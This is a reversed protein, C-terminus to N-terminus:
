FAQPSQVGGEEREGEEGCSSGKPAKLLASAWAEGSDFSNSERLHLRPMPTNRNKLAKWTISIDGPNLAVPRCEQSVIENVATDGIVLRQPHSWTEVEQGRRRGSRQARGELQSSTPMGGPFVVCESWFGSADQVQRTDKMLSALGSRM